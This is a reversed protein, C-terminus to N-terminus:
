FSKDLQRRVLSYAGRKNMQMDGPRALPHEPFVTPLCAPLSLPLSASRIRFGYNKWM